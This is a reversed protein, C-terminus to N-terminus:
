DRLARKKAARLLNKGYICIIMHARQAPQLLLHGKQGRINYAHTYIHIQKIIIIQTRMLFCGFGINVAPRMFIQM